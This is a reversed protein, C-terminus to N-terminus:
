ILASANALQALRCPIAVGSWKSPLPTLRPSMLSSSGSNALSELGFLLERAKQQVVRRVDEDDSNDPTATSNPSPSNPALTGGTNTTPHIAANPDPM